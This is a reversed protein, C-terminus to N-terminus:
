QRTVTPKGCGSWLGCKDFRRKKRCVATTASQRRLIGRNQGARITLSSGTADSRKTASEFTAFGRACRRAGNPEPDPRYVDALCDLSVFGGAHEEMTKKLQEAEYTEPSAFLLKAADDGGMGSRMLAVRREFAKAPADFNLFISECRRTVAFQGFVPEGTVMCRSVHLAIWSKLSEPMGFIMVPGSDREILDDVDMEVPAINDFTVDAASRLPWARNKREESEDIPESAVSSANSLVGNPAPKYRGVSKAIADVEREPMPPKCREQNVARLAHRIARTGTGERQLRGAYRTLTANREGQPIPADDDVGAIPKREQNALLMAALRQPLEAPEDPSSLEKAYQTNSIHQSPPAVFYGGGAKVDIGPFDPVLANTHSGIMEVLERSARFLYHAGGGGTQHTLTDFTSAGLEARLADFSADGGNRPDVDLTVLGSRGCAVGVNAKSRPHWWRRITAQDVTADLHGHTTRPHKAPHDCTPKACSCRWGDGARVPNHLPMVYWGRAAYALAAALLPNRETASM